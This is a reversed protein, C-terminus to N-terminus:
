IYKFNLFGKHFQRNTRLNRKTKSFFDYWYARDSLYIAYEKENKEVTEVFYDDITTMDNRQNLTIIEHKFKTAVGKEIFSVLDLDNPEKKLTVFSGNLWQETKNVRFDGIIKMLSANYTIFEQWITNRHENSLIQVNAWDKLAQIPEGQLVIINASVPQLFGHADFILTNSKQTNEM